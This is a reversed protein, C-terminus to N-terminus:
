AAPRSEPADAEIVGLYGQYEAKQSEPAAELARRSEAVADIQRGAQFLCWALVGRHVFNQEAPALELSRRALEVAEEADAVSAAKPHTLLWALLHAARGDGPHEEAMARALALLDASRGFASMAAVVQVETAFPIEGGRARIELLIRFGEETLQRGDDTAGRARRVDGLNVLSVVYSPHLEGLQQREYEMLERLVGELAELDNQEHYCDHLLELATRFLPLRPNGFKRRLDAQVEEALAVASPYRKQTVLYYGLNLKTRLTDIDDPGLIRRHDEHLQRFVTEADPHGAAALAGALSGRIVLVDRSEAGFTQEAARLARRLLQEAEHWRGQKARTNGLILGAQIVHVHADDLFRTGRALAEAATAGSAEYERLEFEVQALECLRFVYAATDMEGHARLAALSANLMERAPRFDGWASFVRGLEAKVRAGALPAAAFSADVEAAMSQILDIATVLEEARNPDAKYIFQKVLFEITADTVVAHRQTERQAAALHVAQVSLASGGLLASLGAVALVPHRRALKGGRRVLGPPRAQIPEHRLFRGLDAAFEAMTAYRRAPDKELAKRCIVALDRPLAGRLRRPDPPEHHLIREVVQETTDGDFPRTLTLAEYMTAGLSFVDSRRDLPGRRRSVQEPSMYFPTGPSDGTRTLGEADALLAVGFDTVKARGQADILINSPKVDRHVVGAAHACQLAEAVQRIREAQERYFPAPTRVLGHQAALRQALTRAGPVLEQVLFPVGEHVGTAYLAVIGPHAVRGEAEAERHFRELQRPSALYQPALLKVAVHRGLSLQEAEWVVGMGGRGLERLLRFDGGIRAGGAPANWSRGVLDRLFQHDAQLEHLEAQLEAPQLAVWAEFDLAAAAGPAELYNHFLEEARRRIASM